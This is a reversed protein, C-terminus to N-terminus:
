HKRHEDSVVLASVAMISKVASVSTRLSVLFSTSQCSERWEKTSDPILSSISDPIKLCSLDIIGHQIASRISRLAIDIQVLDKSTEAKTRSVVNVNVYHSTLSRIRSEYLTEVDQIDSNKKRDILDTVLARVSERSKENVITINDQHMKISDVTCIKKIDFVSVLEGKLTSICDIGCVTSIDKIMNIADLSEDIKVPVVNLTQRQMNTHLTHLVDNGFGRAFIVLPLNKSNAHELIHHIEAVSEIIGDITIVGVCEHSWNEGPMQIQPSARFVCGSVSEVYSSVSGKSMLRIQGQSGALKFAESLINRNKLSDINKTIIKDIDSRTPPKSERHVLSSFSDITTEFEKIRQCITERPTKLCDKLLSVSTRLSIEASGPAISESKVCQDVLLMKVLDNYDHSSLSQYLVQGPKDTLYFQSDDLVLTLCDSIEDRIKEIEKVTRKIQDKWEDELLIRTLM